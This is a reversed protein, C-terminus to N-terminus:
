WPSGARAVTTVASVTLLQGKRGFQLSKDKRSLHLRHAALNAAITPETPHLSELLGFLSEAFGQMDAKGAYLVALNNLAVTDEPNKQLQRTLRTLEDAAPAAAKNKSSQGAKPAAAQEEQLTTTLESESEEAEDDLFDPDQLEDQDQPVLFPTPTLAQKVSPAPAPVPAPLSANAAPAPVIAGAAPPEAPKVPAAAAKVAIAAMAPALAPKEASAPLAARLAAHPAPVAAPTAVVLGGAAFWTL